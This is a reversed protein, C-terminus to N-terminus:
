CTASISSRGTTAFAPLPIRDHQALRNVAEGIIEFNREITQRLMRDRQYDDLTRDRAIERIYAAADRIDELLKPAKTRM